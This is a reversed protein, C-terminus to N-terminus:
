SAERAFRLEDYKWGALFGETELVAISDGSRLALHRIGSRDMRRLVAGNLRRLWARRNQWDAM